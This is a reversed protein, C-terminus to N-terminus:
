GVERGAILRVLGILFRLGAVSLARFRVLVVVAIIAILRGM